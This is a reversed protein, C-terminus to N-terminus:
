LIMGGYPAVFHKYQNDCFEQTNNNGNADLDMKRKVTWKQETEVNKNRYKDRLWYLATNQLYTRRDGM